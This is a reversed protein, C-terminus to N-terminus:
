IEFFVAVGFVSLVTKKICVHSVSYRGPIGVFFCCASVASAASAIRTQYFAHKISSVTISILRTFSKVPNMRVGTIVQNCLGKDRETKLLGVIFM